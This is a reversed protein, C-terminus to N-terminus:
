FITWDVSFLHDIYLTGPIKKDTPHKDRWIDTLDFDEIIQNIKQRCSKHTDGNKKDM